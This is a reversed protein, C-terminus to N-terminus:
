HLSRSSTTRQLLIYAFHIWFTFHTQDLLMQNNLDWKRIYKTVPRSIKIPWSNQDKEIVERTWQYWFTWAENFCFQWFCFFRHLAWTTKRHATRWQWESLLWEWAVKQWVILRLFSFLQKKKMQHTIVFVESHPHAHINHYVCISFL